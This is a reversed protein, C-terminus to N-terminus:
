DAARVAVAVPRSPPAYFDVRVHTAGRWCERRGEKRIYQKVHEARAVAQADPDGSSQDLAQMEDGVFVEPRQMYRVVQGRTPWNQYTCSVTTSAIPESAGAPAGLPLTAALALTLFKANM